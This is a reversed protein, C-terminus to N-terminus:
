RWAVEELTTHTFRQGEHLVDFRFEWLGPRRVLLRTAYTGDGGPTMTARLTRAARANHFTELCIQADLIPLGAGDALRATLQLTGDPSRTPAFEFELTWGLDTNVRDQERKDDWALAKQYYDEEVAFSPDSIAMYILILNAGIVVAGFLGVVLLWQWRKKV